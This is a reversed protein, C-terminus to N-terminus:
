DGDVTVRVVRVAESVRIQEGSGRMELMLRAAESSVSTPVSTVPRTIGM